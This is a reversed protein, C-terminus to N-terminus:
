QWFLATNFPDAVLAGLDTQSLYAMFFEQDTIALDQDVEEEHTPALEDFAGSGVRAVTDNAASSLIRAAQQRKRADVLKEVAGAISQLSALLTTVPTVSPMKGLTELAKRVYVANHEHKTPHRLSELLLVSSSSELFWADRRRVENSQLRQSIAQFYTIGDIAADTAFRCAQRLWLQDTEQAPDSLVYEAVIFPRFAYQIIQFYPEHAIDALTIIRKRGGMISYWCDYHYLAWATVRGQEAHAEPGRLDGRAGILGMAAAKRCASGIALYAPTARGMNLQYEATLLWFQVAELSVADENLANQQRALVFLKEGMTTDADCLAGSALIVLMNARKQISLAGDGDPNDYMKNLSSALDLPSYFPLLCSIAIIFNDLFVQATSRSVLNVLFPQWESPAISVLGPSPSPNGLFLHRQMFVDLHPSVDHAGAADATSTARPGIPHLISRRIHESLAFSSTPGFYVQSNDSTTAIVGRQESLTGGPTGGPTTDNPVRESPGEDQTPVLVRGAGNPLERLSEAWRVKNESKPLTRM